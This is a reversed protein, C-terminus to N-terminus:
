HVIEPEQPLEDTENRYRRRYSESKAIASTELEGDAEEHEWKRHRRHHYLSEWGGIKERM